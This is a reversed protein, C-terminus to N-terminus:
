VYQLLEIKETRTAKEVVPAADESNEGEDDAELIDKVIENDTLEHQDTEDEEIPDLLKM